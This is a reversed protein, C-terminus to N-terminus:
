LTVYVVVVDDNDTSEFHLTQNYEPYETSAILECVEMVGDFDEEFDEKLRFGIVALERLSNKPDKCSRILELEDGQLIYKADDVGTMDTIVVYNEGPLVEDVKMYISNNDVRRVKDNERFKTM